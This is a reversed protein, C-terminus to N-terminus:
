SRPLVPRLDCRHWRCYRRRLAWRAASGGGNVIAALGSAEKHSITVNPGRLKLELGALGAAANGVTSNFLLAPAGSPGGNFLATLYDTTAHGGASYTGLMVGARDDGGDPVAYRAQAMAQQAIVIGLPGTDDMRRLKMPPIWRAPDFRSIRAALTSRCGEAAFRANSAIGTRGELLAAAFADPSDGFASVAGLGTISIPASM